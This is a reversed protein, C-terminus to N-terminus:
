GKTLEEQLIDLLDFLNKKSKNYRPPHLSMLDANRTIGLGINRIRELKEENWRIIEIKQM